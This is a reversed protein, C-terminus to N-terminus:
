LLKVLSMNELKREIWLHALYSIRMNNLKIDFVNFGLQRALESILKSSKKEGKIIIASM